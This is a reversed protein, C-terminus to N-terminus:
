SYPFFFVLLSIIGLLRSVSLTYGILIRETFVRAKIIKNLFQFETINKENRKNQDRDQDIQDGASERM